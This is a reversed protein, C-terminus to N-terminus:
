VKLSSLINYYINNRKLPSALLMFLKILISNPLPINNNIKYDLTLEQNRSLYNAKILPIIECIIFASESYKVNTEVLYELILPWLIVESKNVKLVLEILVSDAKDRVTKLSTYFPYSEYLDSTKEIEEDTIGSERLLHAIIKISHERTVLDKEFLVYILEILAFRYEFDNDYLAKCVANLLVDKSNILNTRLIIGKLLYINTLRDLLSIQEFRSLLFPYVIEQNSNFILLFIKGMESKVNLFTENLDKVNPSINVSTLVSLLAMM